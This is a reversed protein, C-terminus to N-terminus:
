GSGQQREHGGQDADVGDDRPWKSRHCVTADRRYGDGQQHGRRGPDAGAQILARVVVEHGKQTAIFLPTAGIDMAKSIDAGAQILARVVAEHGKHAAIFLPSMGNDMEKNIDAGLEVLARLAAKHGQEASMCLPTVGRDAAM